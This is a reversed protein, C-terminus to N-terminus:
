NFKDVLVVGVKFGSQAAGLGFDLLRIRGVGGFKGPPRGFIIGNVDWEAADHRLWNKSSQEHILNRFCVMSGDFSADRWARFSGIKLNRGFTINEWSFRMKGYFLAEGHPKLATKGYILLWTMMSWFPLSRVELAVVLTCIGQTKSKVVLPSGSRGFSM